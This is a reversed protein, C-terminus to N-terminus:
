WLTALASGDLERLLSAADDYVAIAGADRLEAESVGGSLLGITPVGIKKAAVVDWVADGIFVARDASVGARELAVEVIEPEPKAKEVDKSSTIEAIADDLDLTARLRDLEDPTASTALVVKVGHDAVATVLERAHDFPRLLEASRLYFESHLEKAKDGLEDAKDGLLTELLLSSDKGIARHIRWSDVPHGVAHFARLWADVHLYNSDVLTGDIDFLAATGESM